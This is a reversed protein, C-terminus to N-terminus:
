FRPRPPPTPCLPFVFTFATAKRIDGRDVQFRSFLHAIELFVPLFQATFKCKQMGDSSIPNKTRPSFANLADQCLSEPNCKLSLILQM